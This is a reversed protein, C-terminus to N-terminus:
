FLICSFFLCFWVAVKVLFCFESRGCMSIKRWFLGKSVLFSQQCWSPNNAFTAKALVTKGMDKHLYWNPQYVGGAAVVMFCQQSNAARYQFFSMFMIKNGITFLKASAIGNQKEQSVVFRVALPDTIM